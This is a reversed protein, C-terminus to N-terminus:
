RLLSSVDFKRSYLLEYIEADIFIEPVYLGLSQPLHNSMPYPKEEVTTSGSLYAAQRLKPVESALLYLRDMYSGFIHSIYKLNENGNNEHEEIVWSPSYKMFMANNSADYNRGQTILNNRTTRYDPHNSRVIPELYETLAAGAEVMASGTGRSSQGTYGTWVGNTVRGAYDLVVSDSSSTLTIGENFKYYVGLTANSIDTNTGGDVTKFWSYDILKSNRAEKWFRFEDISGSLKGAGATATSGSPATLLAGIRGMMNKSNLESIAGSFTETDNLKGNVYLKAVFNSGSNKMSVAYHQWSQLSTTTLSEGISATFVSTSTTGSQVTLIFPSVSAAGTLEVTIRGYSNSSTAYNNWIDVVVEKETKTTDFADKKLWFEFTVGDDFNSRLNSLRTGLGYDAPLGETTYIDEDYLNGRNLISSNENPALDKLKGSSISGTGPGGKFTIYELDTPTGYGDSTQSGNLTGWGTASLLIYGNTRPYKKNLIHKEIESLSNIFKEKEYHSGDYPYYNIIKDFSAQYYLEASGFKAFTAPNEYNVRPIITEDNELTIQANKRSEVLEYTTKEDKYDSFNTNKNESDFLKKISM